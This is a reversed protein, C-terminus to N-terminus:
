KHSIAVYQYFIEFNKYMVGEITVIATHQRAIFISSKNTKVSDVLTVSLCVCPRVFSRVSLCQMDEFVLSLLQCWFCLVEGLLGSCPAAM